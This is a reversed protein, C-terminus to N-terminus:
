SDQSMLTFCCMDLDVVFVGAETALQKLQTKEWSSATAPHETVFKRGLKMQIRVMEVSLDVMEIAKAWEGPCRAEPLGYASLNQLSSFLTCPTSLILLASAYQYLLRKAAKAERLLDWARHTKPCVEAVDLSWGERWGLKSAMLSMRPPSFM